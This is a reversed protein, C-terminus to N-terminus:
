PLAEGKELAEMYEKEQQKRYRQNPSGRKKVLNRAPETGWMRFTGHRLGDRQYDGALTTGGDRIETVQFVTSGEGANISVNGVVDRRTFRPMSTLDEISLQENYTMMNISSTQAMRRSSHWGDEDSGRLTKTKAGRSSTRAGSDIESRQEPNPEWPGLVRSRPNGSIAEFRGSTDKLVIITHEDWQLRSGKPSFSWVLDQWHMREPHASSDDQYHILVYWTGRIDLPENERATATSALVVCGGMILTSLAALPVHTPNPRRRSSADM